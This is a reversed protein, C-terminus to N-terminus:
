LNQGSIFAQWSTGGDVTFFVFVDKKGSTSTLTPATGAPWKFSAPWTVSRATGDATFILVFSSTRGSSQVNSITLTTIAGNLAVDFVTATNLDITLTGGSITPAVRLEATNNPSLIGSVTLSTLSGVSTINPQANTTVTGASTALPVTGTVNAGTISTLASGNGIFYNASINGAYTPLYSDVNSNSYSTIGTLQSGNGIFYTATVNGTGGSGVQLNGIMTVNGSLLSITNTGSTDQINGVKIGGSTATILGSTLSTLTGISTINPQAQTTLTGAVLTASVNGVSINGASDKGVITLYNTGDNTIQWVDDTEYWRLQTAPSDGRVVRLGANNSPTGTTRASIDILNDEVSLTLVNINGTTGQVTINGTIILDDDVKIHGSGNASLTLDTNATYSTLQDIAIPNTFRIANGDSSTIASGAEIQFPGKVAIVGTGTPDLEIDGSGTTVVRLNQNVDATVVIDTGSAELVKSGDIYLSGPGIYVDKFVHTPDGLSFTNNSTPTINGTLTVNPLLASGTINANAVTLNSTISVNALSFSSAPDLGSTKIYTLAM